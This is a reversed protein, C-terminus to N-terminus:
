HAKGRGTSGLSFNTASHYRTVALLDVSGRRATAQEVAPCGAAPAVIFYTCLPSLTPFTGPAKAASFSHCLWRFHPPRMQASATCPGFRVSHPAGPPHAWDCPVPRLPGVSSSRKTRMTGRLQSALLSFKTALLEMSIACDWFSCLRNPAQLSGLACLVFSKTRQESKLM